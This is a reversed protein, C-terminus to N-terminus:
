LEYAPDIQCYCADCYLDSDEWNVISEVVPDATQPDAAACAACLCAGRRTVYFLPYGGVDTFAPLSGDQRLLAKVQPSM